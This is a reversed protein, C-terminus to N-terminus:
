GGIPTLFALNLSFPPPPVLLFICLVWDVSFSMILPLYGGFHPEGVYIYVCHGNQSTIKKEVPFALQRPFLQMPVGLACPRWPCM